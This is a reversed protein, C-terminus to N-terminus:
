SQSPKSEESKGGKPTWMYWGHIPCGLEKKMKTFEEDPEKASADCYFDDFVKFGHAEYLGRGDETSEVFSELGMDDAKKTEWELM